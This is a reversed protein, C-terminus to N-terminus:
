KVDSVMITFDEASVENYITITILFDGSTSYSHSASYVTGNTFLDALPVDDNVDYGGTTAEGFNFKVFADTPFVCSNDYAVSFYM